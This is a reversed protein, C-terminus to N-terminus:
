VTARRSKILLLRFPFDLIQPHLIHDRTGRSVSELIVVDAAITSSLGTREESLAGHM